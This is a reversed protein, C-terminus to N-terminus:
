TRFSRLQEWILWAAAFLALALGSLLGLTYDM